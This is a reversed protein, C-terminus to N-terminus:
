DASKDSVKGTKVLEVLQDLAAGWGDAFGMSAHQQQAETNAHMVHARYRTGGNESTLTICATMFSEANPRFGPGLADTWVLREGEVVDLVCGDGPMTEGEPSQMVTRFVGGPHLEIKAEAVTWPRPAFWQVLQEPDTWAKWVLPTEVDVWRELVLDKDDDFTMTM